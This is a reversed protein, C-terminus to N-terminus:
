HTGFQNTLNSTQKFRRRSAEVLDRRLYCLLGMLSNYIANLEKFENLAYEVVSSRLSWHALRQAYILLFPLLGTGGVERITSSL